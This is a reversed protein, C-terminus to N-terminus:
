AIKELNGIIFIYINRKKGFPKSFTFNGIPLLAERM